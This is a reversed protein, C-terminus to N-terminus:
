EGGQKMLQITHKAVESDDYDWWLLSNKFRFALRYVGDIFFMQMKADCEAVIDDKNIIANPQEDSDVCDFFHELDEASSLYINDDTEFSELDDPNITWSIDIM